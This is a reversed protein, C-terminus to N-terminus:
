LSQFEGTTHPLTFDAKSILKEFKEICIEMKRLIAENGLYLSMGVNLCENRTIM